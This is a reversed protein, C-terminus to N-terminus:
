HTLSDFLSRAPRPPTSARGRVSSVWLANGPAPVTMMRHAQASLFESWTPGGRQPAPDIGANKLIERAWPTSANKKLVSMRATATVM